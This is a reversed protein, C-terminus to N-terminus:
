WAWAFGYCWSPVLREFRREFRGDEGRPVLQGPAPHEADVIDPVAFWWVSGPVAPAAFGASLLLQESGGTALYRLRPAAPVESHVEVRFAVTHPAPDEPALERDLRFYAGIAGSPSAQAAAVVAGSLAEVSLVGPRQDAPYNFGTYYMRVGPSNATLAIECVVDRIAGTPGFEYHARTSAVHYHRQVDQRGGVETMDRPPGAAPEGGQRRRRAANRSAAVMQEYLAYIEVSVSGPMAVYSEILEPSPTTAGAEVLSIHGSSFYVQGKPVQRTSIGARTRTARLSRGLRTHADSLAQAPPM